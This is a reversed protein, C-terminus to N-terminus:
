RTQDNHRRYEPCLYRSCKNASRRDIEMSTPHSAFSIQRRQRLDCGAAARPKARVVEEFLLHLHAYVLGVDAGRFIKAVFAVGPDLIHTVINIASSYPQSQIYEDFPSRGIIAPAGDYVVLQTFCSPVIFIKRLSDLNLFLVLYQISRFDIDVGLFGYKSV